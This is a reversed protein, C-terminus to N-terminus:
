SKVSRSEWNAWLDVLRHPATWTCNTIALLLAVHFNVHLTTATIMVTLDARRALMACTMTYSLFSYPPRM